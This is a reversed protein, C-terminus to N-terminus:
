SKNLLDLIINEELSKQINNRIDHDLLLKEITKMLEVTIKNSTLFKMIENNRYTLIIFEQLLYMNKESIFNPDKLLIYLAQVIYQHSPNFTMEQGNPLEIQLLKDIKTIKKIGFKELDSIINELIMDSEKHGLFMTGIDTRFLYLYIYTITIYFAKKSEQTGRILMGTLKINNGTIEKFVPSGSFGRYSSLGDDDYIDIEGIGEKINICTGKLYNRNLILNAHNEEDIYEFMNTESPHGIVLLEDGISAKETDNDERIDYFRTPLKLISNEQNSFLEIIAIDNTDYSNLGTVDIGMDNSPVSHMYIQQIAIRTDINQLNCKNLEKILFFADVKEQNNEFTSIVETKEFVHRATLFIDYNGYKLFFGTGGLWYNFCSPPNNNLYFTIPRISNKYKIEFESKTM